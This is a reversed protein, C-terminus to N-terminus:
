DEEDPIVGNTRLYGVAVEASDISQPVYVTDCNNNITVEKNQISKGVKIGIGLQLILMVLVVLIYKIKM